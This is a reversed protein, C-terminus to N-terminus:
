GAKLLMLTGDSSIMPRYAATQLFNKANEAQWEENMLLPSYLDKILEPGGVEAARLVARNIWDLRPGGRRLTNLLVIAEAESGNGAEHARIAFLGGISLGVFISRVPKEQRILAIADSVIDSESTQAFDFETEPQGRFNWILLGHGAKRLADGVTATWMGKDGTLANFCVFTRGDPASPKIHEFPFSNKANCQFQSSGDSM